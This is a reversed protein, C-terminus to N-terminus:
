YVLWGVVKGFGDEANLNEDKSRREREKKGEVGVM